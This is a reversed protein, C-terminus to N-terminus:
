GQLSQRKQELRRNFKEAEIIFREHTGKCIIEAQDRAEVQFLLRKGKIDLLKVKASVMMGPPTAALHSITVQTGVTQEVPWDIHPMVAQICTWELFGVLFGTAFVKPMEQFEVAEPYLAPVTKTDPVRYTFEHEIGPQLTEKM